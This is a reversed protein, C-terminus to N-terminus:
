LAAAAVWWAPAGRRARPLVVWDHRGAPGSRLRDSAAHPCRHPELGNRVRGRAHHADARCPEVPADSVHLREQLPLLASGSRQLARGDGGGGGPAEPIPGGSCPAGAHRGRRNHRPAPLRSHGAEPGPLGLTLRTGPDDERRLISAILGLYGSLAFLLPAFVPPGMIVNMTPIRWGGPKRAVGRVHFYFGVIGDVVTLASVIPLLVRASWRNLAGAIGAGALAASLVVPTYMVQQNYSGRYHEYTVELGSLVSSLAAVLSLSRQFRGERIHQEVIIGEHTIGRPVLTRLGGIPASLPNSMFIDPRGQRPLGHTRHSRRRASGEAVSRRLEQGAKATFKPPMPPENPDVVAELVAPGPVALFERMVADINEAREVCFGQAGAARAWAAFDATQLEVGYEPNGLFVIQEWKIQGLVNNKIIIVKIPLKHKVATLMEGMLMTFGGDGVFAIVQRDPHAVQAGISYPLGPAMTALNGSLSFM